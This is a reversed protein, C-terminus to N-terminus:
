RDTPRSGDTTMTMTTTAVAAATTTRRRRRERGVDGVGRWETAAEGRGGNARVCARGCVYDRSSTLLSVFARARLVSACERVRVSYYAADRCVAGRRESTVGSGVGLRQLRATTTTTTAATTTTTARRLQLVGYGAAQWCACLRVIFIMNM